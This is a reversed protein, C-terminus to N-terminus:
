WPFDEIRILRAVHYLAVRMCIDAHKPLRILMGYNSLILM